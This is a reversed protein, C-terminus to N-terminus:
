GGFTNLRPRDEYLERWESVHEAGWEAIQESHVAEMLAGENAVVYAVLRKDGPVDERVMAVAQRVAPHGALTVQIEGLEIRYGRLKVQDDIRGLFEINGDALFRVLDGSCYLRAGAEGSFPDRVFKEATLEGWAPAPLSKREDSIERRGSIRLRKDSQSIDRNEAILIDNVM